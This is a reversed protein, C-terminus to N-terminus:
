MRRPPPALHSALPPSSPASHRYPCARPRYRRLPTLAAPLPLTQLSPSPSPRRSPSPPPCPPRTVRCCPWDSRCTRIPSCAKPSSCNRPSGCRKNSPPKNRSSSKCNYSRCPAGFLTCTLILPFVYCRPLGRSFCFAGRQGERRERAVIILHQVWHASPSSPASTSGVTSATVRGAVHQRHGAPVLSSFM